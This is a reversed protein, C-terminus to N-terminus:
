AFPGAQVRPAHPVLRADETVVGHGPEVGHQARQGPRRWGSELPDHDVTHQRGIPSERVPHRVFSGKAHRDLTFRAKDPRFRRAVGGATLAGRPGAHAGKGATKLALMEDLFADAAFGAVAAPALM